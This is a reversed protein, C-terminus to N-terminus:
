RTINVRYKNDPNQWTYLEVYENEDPIQVIMSVIGEEGAPIVRYAAKSFFGEDIYTEMYGHEVDLTYRYPTIEVSINTDNELVIDLRYFSKGEKCETEAYSKGLNEVYVDSIELETNYILDYHIDSQGTVALGICFLLVVGTVLIMLVILLNRIWKNM